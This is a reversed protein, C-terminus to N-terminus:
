NGGLGILVWFYRNEVYPWQKVTSLFAGLTFYAIDSVEVKPYAFWIHQGYAIVFFIPIALVYRCKKIVLLWLPACIFSFLLTRLFWLACNFHPHNYNILGFTYDIADFISKGDFPTREFLFKGSVYNSLIVLPMGLILGYLGWSFYPIALRLLKKKLFSFYQGNSIYDSHGFWYGSALFFWPVAWSTVVRSRGTGDCHILLVCLAAIFSVVKARESIIKGNEM